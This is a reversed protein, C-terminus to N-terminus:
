SGMFQMSDLFHKRMEESNWSNFTLIMTLDLHVLNYCQTYFNNIQRFHVADMYSNAIYLSEISSNRFPICKASDFKPKQFMSNPKSYEDKRKQIRAHFYGLFLTIYKQDVSQLRLETTSISEDKPLSDILEHFVRFIPDTTPDNLQHHFKENGSEMLNNKNHESVIFQMNHFSDLNNKILDFYGGIDESSGTDVKKLVKFFHAIIGYSFAQIIILLVFAVIVYLILLPIYPTIEPQDYYEYGQSFNM